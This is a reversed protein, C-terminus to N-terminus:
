RNSDVHVFVRHRAFFSQQILLHDLNISAMIVPNILPCVFLRSTAADFMRGPRGARMASAAHRHSTHTHCSVINYIINITLIEMDM